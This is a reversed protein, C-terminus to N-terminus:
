GSPSDGYPATQLEMNHGDPDDFYVGRGGHDHNIRGPREHFPDAWYSLGADQIRAFAADFVADDVLFAYHQSQVPADGVELFDLTVGNDLRIPLFPGWPQQVPVGLIGALFTASAHKDRARVVTHDLAVTM